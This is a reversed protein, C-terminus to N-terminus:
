VCLAISWSTITAAIAALWLLIRVSAWAQFQEAVQFVYTIGAAAVAIAIAATSGSHVAFAFTLINTLLGYALVAVLFIPNM